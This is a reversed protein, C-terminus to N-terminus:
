NTIKWFKGRSLFIHGDGFIINSKTGILELNEKVKKSKSRTNIVTIQPNLTEVLRNLYIFKGNLNPIFLYNVEQIDNKIQEISKLNNIILAKHGQIEFYHYDSQKNFEDQYEHNLIKADKIKLQYVNYPQLNSGLLMLFASAALTKQILKSRLIKLAYNETEDELDKLLFTAVSINFIWFLVLSTFDLELKTNIFPLKQSLNFIYVLLDLLPDILFCIGTFSLITIFSLIPTFVLNSLLSWLQLNSFYYVVLPFLLIQTSLSVALTERLWKIKIISELKSNIDNAWLIIGMTALYSLQFGIDFATHPDIILAIAALIILLNFSNVKRNSNKFLLFTIAMLGARVIPPCFNITAMYLIMLSIALPTQIRKIFLIRDSIWMIILLLIVLHFGSASFFHALGLNRINNMLQRDITANNGGLVLGLAIEANIPKLHEKYYRKIIKQLKNIKTQYQGVIEFKKNKLQYFLKDKRYFDRKAKEIKIIDLKEPFSILDNEQLAKSNSTKWMLTPNLYDELFNRAIPRLYITESFFAGEKTEIVRFIQGQNQIKNKAFYEFYEQRINFSLYMLLFFSLLSFIQNHFKRLTTFALTSIVLCFIASVLVGDGTLAFYLSGLLIGLASYFINLSVM